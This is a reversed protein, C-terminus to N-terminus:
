LVDKTRQCNEYHPDACDTVKESGALDVLHLKGLLSTGTETDTQKVSLQFVSHSRSSHENMDTVAVHRNRRGREIVAHVEETSCVDVETIGQM